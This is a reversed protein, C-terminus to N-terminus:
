QCRRNPPSGSTMPRTIVISELGRATIPTMGALKEM